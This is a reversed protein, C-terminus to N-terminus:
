HDGQELGGARPLSKRLGDLSVKFVELSSVAAVERHFRDWQRVVRVNFFKRRIGLYKKKKGKKKKLGVTNQIRTEM